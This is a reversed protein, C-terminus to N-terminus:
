YSYISNMAVCAAREEAECQQRKETATLENWSHKMSRGNRFVFFLRTDEVHTMYDSEIVRNITNTIPM